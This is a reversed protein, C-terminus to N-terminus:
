RKVRTLTLYIIHNHVNRQSLIMKNSTIKKIEMKETKYFMRDNFDNREVFKWDDETNLISFVTDTQLILLNDNVTM